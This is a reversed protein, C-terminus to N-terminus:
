LMEKGTLIKRVELMASYTPLIFATGKDPTAKVLKNIAEKLDPVIQVNNSFELSSSYKLRLGMDFARDGSVLIQYSDAILEDTEVDWIWSVDRGDPIRDNLVILVNAQSNSLDKIVEISQNLGAPNKSLLLFLNRNKYQIKEQRGFAASFDQLSNTIQERSLNFVEQATKIAAHVNYMNYKGELVTTVSYETAQKINQNTFGCSPCRYKGLHSYAIKSFMLQTGCQPCFSSDVDHSLPKKIFLSNPISFYYVKSKTHKVLNRIEPDDANLIIKTAPSLTKLAKHWREAISHVEGYRDLQDRFLNLFIIATPTVQELISSLNNEDVEFIAVDYPITGSLTSNRILSTAIGNILNAGEENQFVQHGTKELIHRLVKSTTTKGNTGAILIIALGTNNKRIQSLFHSDLKLAIHGPWTSGSGLSLTQITKLITKGAWLSFKTNLSM